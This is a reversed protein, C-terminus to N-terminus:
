LISSTDPISQYYLAASKYLERYMEVMKRRTEATKWPANSGDWFFDKTVVGAVFHPSRFEVRDEFEEFIPQYDRNFIVRRGDRTRYRGYPLMKMMMFYKADSMSNGASSLWNSIADLGERGQWFEYNRSKVGYSM